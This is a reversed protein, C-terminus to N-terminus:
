VVEAVREVGEKVTDVPVAIFRHYDRDESAIAFVVSKNGAFALMEEIAGPIVEFLDRLERRTVVLGRLDPSEAVYLTGDKAISVRIERAQAIENKM